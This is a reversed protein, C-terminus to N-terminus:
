ALNSTFFHFATARQAHPLNKKLISFRYYVDVNIVTCDAFIVDHLGADVALSILDRLRLFCASGRPSGAVM